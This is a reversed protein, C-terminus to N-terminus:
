NSNGIELKRFSIPTSPPFVVDALVAENVELAPRGHVLMVPCAVVGGLGLIRWRVHLDGILQEFSNQIM